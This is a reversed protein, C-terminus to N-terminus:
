NENRKGLLILVVFAAGTFVSFPIVIYLIGQLDLPYAYDFTDPINQRICLDPLIATANEASCLTTLNDRHVDLKGTSKEVLQQDYVFFCNAFHPSNLISVIAKHQKSEIVVVGTQPNTSLTADVTITYESNNEKLKNFVYVDDAFTKEVDNLDSEFDCSYSNETKTNMLNNLFDDGRNITSYLSMKSDLKRMDFGSVLDYLSFVNHGTTNGESYDDLFKVIEKTAIYDGVCLDRYYHDNRKDAFLVYDEGDRYYDDWSLDAKIVFREQYEGKYVTITEFVLTTIKEFKPESPAVNKEVLKAHLLLDHQSYEDEFPPIGCSLGFVPSSPVILVM